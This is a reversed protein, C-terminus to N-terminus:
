VIAQVCPRNKLVPPRAYRTPGRPWPGRSAAERIFAAHDFDPEGASLGASTSVTPGASAPLPRRSADM